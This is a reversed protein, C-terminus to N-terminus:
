HLEMALADLIFSCARVRQFIPPQDEARAKNPYGLVQTMHPVPRRRARRTALVALPPTRASVMSKLTNLIETVLNVGAECVEPRRKAEFAPFLALRSLPLRSNFVRGKFVRVPCVAAWGHGLTRTAPVGM